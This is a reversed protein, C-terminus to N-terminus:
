DGARGVRRYRGEYLFVEARGKGYLGVGDITYLDGGADRVIEERFTEEIGAATDRRHWFLTKGARTGTLLKMTGDPGWLRCELAGNVDTNQGRSEKVSGDARRDTITVSQENPTITTYEQRVLLSSELTGDTRRTNFTGEWAGDWRAFPSSEDQAAQEIVEAPEPGRGRLNRAVMVLAALALLALIFVRIM